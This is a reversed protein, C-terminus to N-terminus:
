KNWDALVGLATGRIELLAGSKTEVRYTQNAGTPGVAQVSFEVRGSKSGAPAGDYSWDGKCTVYGGAGDVRDIEEINEIRDTGASVGGPSMEQVLLASLLSRVRTDDCDAARVPGAVALVGAIALVLRM